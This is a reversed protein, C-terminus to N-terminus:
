PINWYSALMGSEHLKEIVYALPIMAIFVSSDRFNKWLLTTSMGSSGALSIHSLSPFFAPTSDKYARFEAGFLSELRKEESSIVFPYYVTFTVLYMGILIVNEFEVCAGLGALFSFLYLPNRCMSYPGTTVLSSNKRGGIHMTAWLRGSVGAMILLVGAWDFAIDVMSCPAWSHHTFAVIAIGIILFLASLHRRRREFVNFGKKM